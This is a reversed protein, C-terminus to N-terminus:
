CESSLAFYVSAGNSLKLKGPEEMRRDANLTFLEYPGTDLNKDNMKSLLLQIRERFIFRYMDAHYNILRLHMRVNTNSTIQM